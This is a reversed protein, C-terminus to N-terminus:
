ANRTVEHTSCTRGDDRKIEGGAPLVDCHPTRVSVDSHHLCVSGSPDSLAPSCLISCKQLEPLRQVQQEM